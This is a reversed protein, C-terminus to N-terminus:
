KPPKAAARAARAALRRPRQRSRPGADGRARGPRVPAREGPLVDRKTLVAVAIRRLTSGSDVPHPQFPRGIKKRLGLYRHPPLRSPSWRRCHGLRPERGPPLSLEKQQEMCQAMGTRSSARNTCLWAELDRAFLSSNRRRKWLTGCGSSAATSLALSGAERLNLAGTPLRGVHRGPIAASWADGDALHEEPQEKKRQEGRRAEDTPCDAV